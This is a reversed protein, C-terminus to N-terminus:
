SPGAESRRCPCRVPCSGTVPFPSDNMGALAPAPEGREGASSPSSAVIPLVAKPEPRDDRNENEHSTVMSDRPKPKTSASTDIAVAVPQAPQLATRSPAALKADTRAPDVTPIEHLVHPASAVTGVKDVPATAVDRRGFDHITFMLAVAVALASWAVVRPRFLRSILTSWDLGHAAMRTSRTQPLPAESLSRQEVERLVHSSLDESLKESPLSQLACSLARFEEMLQRAAPSAALLQEM